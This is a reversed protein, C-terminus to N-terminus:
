NSVSNIMIVSTTLNVTSVTLLSFLIAFTFGLYLVFFTTLCSLQFGTTLITILKISSVTTRGNVVLFRGNVATAMNDARDGGIPPM